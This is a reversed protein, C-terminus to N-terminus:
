VLEDTAFYIRCMRLRRLDQIRVGQESAIHLMTQAYRAFILDQARSATEICWLIEHPWIVEALVSQESSTGAQLGFELTAIDFWETLYVNWWAV